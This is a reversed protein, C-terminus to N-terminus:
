RFVNFNDMTKFSIQFREFDIRTKVTDYEVINIENWLVITIHIRTRSPGLMEANTNIFEVIAQRIIVQNSANKGDFRNL